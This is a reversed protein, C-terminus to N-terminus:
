TSSAESPTYVKKLERNSYVQQEEKPKAAAAAAYRPRYKGLLISNGVVTVSSLAM